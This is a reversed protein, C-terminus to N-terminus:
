SGGIASRACGFELATGRGVIADFGAVFTQDIRDDECETLMVADSLVATDDCSTKPEEDTAPDKPRIGFSDLSVAVGDKSAPVTDAETFIEICPLDFVVLIPILESEVCAADEPGSLEFESEELSYPELLLLLRIGTERGLGPDTRWEVLMEIRASEISIDVFLL